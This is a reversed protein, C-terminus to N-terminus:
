PAGRAAERFHLAEEVHEVEVWEGGEVDAITRAVRLARTVARASLLLREGLRAVRELAAQRVLGRAALRSPSIEANTTPGKWRSAQRARAELVRARLTSSCLGPPAPTAGPLGCLDALDVAGVFLHLDIRDLLPGSIRNRYAHAEGRRCVCARLPHGQYGCPCPNMAAVLLFRAPFTVTGTSRGISIMGEELPERLAELAHRHFEPLEDLFLVGRHARTVEGPRLQSGGGVLGAYSVTHHPARFPRQAALDEPTNQGVVSQIRTVELAEPLALEPLITPLRRALMTKGSGPPGVLLINHGGAAALLFGRKSVEQGRVESFDVAAGPVPAGPAGRPPLQPAPGGGRVAGLASHLDPAPWVELGGVLSAERANGVPTVLRAVPGTSGRRALAGAVLLAGPVPRLEGHLGLEGLFATGEVLGNAGVARQGMGGQGSALIIGLAIALDFGSGQKELAAPALNVLIRHKFPFAFGSNSIAARVRDRSERISKGALGVVTFSPTGCESVDVQVEVARGEIGLYDGSRLRVMSVAAAPSSPSLPTAPGAVDGRPGGELDGGAGRRGALVSRGPAAGERRSTSM